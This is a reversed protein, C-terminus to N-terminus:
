DEKGRNENCAMNEPYYEMICCPYYSESYDTGIKLVVKTTKCDKICLVDECGGLYECLVKQAPFSNKCPKTSVSLDEMYSRYGDDPNEKAAYTVGDLCFLIEAGGYFDAPKYDVGSLEHLGILNELKIGGQNESM